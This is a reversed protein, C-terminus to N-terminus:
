FGDAGCHSCEGKVLLGGCLPCQKVYGMPTRDVPPNKKKPAKFFDELYGKKYEDSMGHEM